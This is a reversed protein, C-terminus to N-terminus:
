FVFIVACTTLAVDLVIGLVSSFSILMEFVRNFMKLSIEQVDKSVCLDKSKM